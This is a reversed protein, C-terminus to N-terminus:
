FSGNLVSLLYAPSLAAKLRRGKIGCRATHDQRLLNLALRRLLSFNHAAHGRRVRSHDERFVVDLVWHVGNEIGWHGRIAEQHSRAGARLSSLFYRTEQSTSGAVRRRAVVQVVAALDPWAGAPNLYALLTPDTIVTTTRVEVRGHGKDVQRDQEHVYAQGQTRTLETFAEEVAQHVTEQNAKLALVYDAQQERIQRAIATQCGMADVTVICGALALTRLLVPVAPIENSGEAVAVQALVLRNASAWASVLDLAARGAAGDHSGRLVKGDIAIVQAGLARAVAQVWRAFCREFAVPDLAAFVRGFTDHSPVGNPVELWRALWDQQMQGYEAVEVWSDAGCIIACLAISIIALLSHRKTREVRPDTLEAFYTAISPTTPTPSM